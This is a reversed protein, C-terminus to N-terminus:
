AVMEDFFFRLLIQKWIVNDLYTPYVHLTQIAQNGSFEVYKEGSQEVNALHLLHDHQCAMGVLGTDDCGGWHTKGRM